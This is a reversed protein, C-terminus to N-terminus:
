RSAPSRGPVLTTPNRQSPALRVDPQRRGAGAVRWEVPVPFGTTDTTVPVIAIGFEFDRPPGAFGPVRTIAQRPHSVVPRPRQISVPSQGANDPCYAM